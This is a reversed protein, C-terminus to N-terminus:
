AAGGGTYADYAAASHLPAWTGDPFYFRASAPDSVPLYRIGRFLDEGFQDICTELLPPLEAREVRDPDAGTHEVIDVLDAALEGGQPVWCTAIVEASPVEGFWYWNDGPLWDQLYSFLASGPLSLIDGVGAAHWHELMAEVVTMQWKPDIDQLHGALCDVAFRTATSCLVEKHFDEATREEQAVTVLIEAVHQATEMAAEAEKPVPVGAWGTATNAVLRLPQTEALAAQGGDCQEESVDFM